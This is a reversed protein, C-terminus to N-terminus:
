YSDADDDDDDDDSDDDDNDDDDDDDSGDDNDDDDSGDDGDDDSVDYDYDDDYSSFCSNVGFGASERSTHRRLQRPINQRHPITYMFKDIYRNKYM